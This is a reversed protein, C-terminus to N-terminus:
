YFGAKNKLAKPPREGPDDPDFPRRRQLLITDCLDVIKKYSEKLGEFEKYYKQIEELLTLSISTAVRKDGLLLEVVDDHAKKFAKRIAYNDNGIPDVKPHTLLLRVIEVRGARSAKQILYTYGPDVRPDDLLLKVVEVHGSLSAHRISYNFNASPDVRTSTLLLRVVETHGIRSAWQIALNDMAGPNVRPNDLLLKVVEAHGNHSAWRIACNVGASPDVRPSTLLLRVVETHGKDSAWQIAYNDSFGPNAGYLGLLRVLNVKGTRAAVILAYNLPLTTTILNNEETIIQCMEEILVLPSDFGDRQEPQACAELFLNKIYESQAKQDPYLELFARGRKNRTMIWKLFTKRTRRHENLLNQRQEENLNGVWQIDLLDDIIRISSETNYFFHMDLADVPTETRLLKIIISM